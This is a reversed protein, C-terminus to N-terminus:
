YTNTISFKPDRPPLVEGLRIDHSEKHYVLCDLDWALPNGQVPMAYIDPTEEKVQKYLEVAADEDEAWVYGQHLVEVVFLRKRSM